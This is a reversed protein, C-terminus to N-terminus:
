FVMKQLLHFFTVWFIRLHDLPLYSCTVTSPEANFSVQQRQSYIHKHTLEELRNICFFSGYLIYQLVGRDKKAIKFHFCNYIHQTTPRWLPHPLQSSRGPEANYNIIYIICNNLLFGLNFLFSVILMLQLFNIYRSTHSILSYM